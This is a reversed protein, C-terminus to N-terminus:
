KKGKGKLRNLIDEIETQVQQTAKVRPPTIKGTQQDNLYENQYKENKKNNYENMFSNIFDEMSKNGDSFEKEAKPTSKKSTKTTKKSSGSSKVTKVVTKKTKKKKNTSTKYYDPNNGPTKKMKSANYKSAVSGPMGMPVYDNRVGWKMGPTGYHEISESDDRFTVKYNM